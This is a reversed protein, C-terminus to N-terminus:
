SAWGRNPPEVVTAAPSHAMLVTAKERKRDLSFGTDQTYLLRLLNGARQGGVSVEHLGDKRRHIAVGESCDRYGDIEAKQMFRVFQTLLSYTGFIRVRAKGHRDVDLTGDGDIVGLWFTPCLEISGTAEAILSKRPVVGFQALRSVIQRSHFKLAVSSTSPVQYIPRNESSLFRRFKALHGVDTKALQLCVKSEDLICGDAMLFGIWYASEATVQDFAADNIPYVRRATDAPRRTVGARKLHYLVAVDTVELRRALSGTSEGAAYSTSIDAIQEASLKGM